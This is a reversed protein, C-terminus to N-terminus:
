CRALRREVEEGGGFGGEAVGARGGASRASEDASGVVVLCWWGNLRQARVGDESVAGRGGALEEGVRVPRKMWGEQEPLVSM